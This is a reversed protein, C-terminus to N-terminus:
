FPSVTPAPAIKIWFSLLSVIALTMGVGFLGMQFWLSILSCSDWSYVKENDPAAANPMLASGGAYAIHSVMGAIISAGLFGIGVLAVWFVWDKNGSAGSALATGGGFFLAFSAIILLWNAITMRTNAFDKNIVKLQKPKKGTKAKEKEVVGETTEVKEKEPLDNMKEELEEAV